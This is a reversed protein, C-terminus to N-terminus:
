SEDEDIREGSIGGEIGRHDRIRRAFWFVAGAGGAPCTLAPNKELCDVFYLRFVYREAAAACRLAIEMVTRVKM